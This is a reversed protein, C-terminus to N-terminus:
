GYRKVTNGTNVRLHEFSPPEVPDDRKVLVGHNACAYRRRRDHRVPFWGHGVVKIPHEFRCLRENNLCRPSM